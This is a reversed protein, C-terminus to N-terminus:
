SSQIKMGTGKRNDFKSLYKLQKLLIKNQLNFQLIGFLLVGVPL